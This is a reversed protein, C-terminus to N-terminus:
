RKNQYPRQLKILIFQLLLTESCCNDEQHVEFGLFINMPYTPIKLYVVNKQRSALISCFFFLMFKGDEKTWAQTDAQNKIQSSQQPSPTHPDGETVSANFNQLCFVWLDSLFWM